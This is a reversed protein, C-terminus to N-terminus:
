NPAVVKLSVDDDDDDDDDFIVVVVERKAEIRGNCAAM